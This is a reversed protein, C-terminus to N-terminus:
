VYRLYNWIFRCSTAVCVKIMNRERMLFKMYENHNFIPHLTGNQFTLIHDDHNKSKVNTNFLVSSFNTVSQRYNKDVFASKINPYLNEM